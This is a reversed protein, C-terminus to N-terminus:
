FTLAKLHYGRKMQGVDYETRDAIKEGKENEHTRINVLMRTHAIQGSQADYVNKTQVRPVEIQDIQHKVLFLDFVFAHEVTTEEREKAIKYQLCAWPNYAGYAHVTDRGNKEFSGVFEGFENAVGFVDYKHHHKKAEAIIGNYQYIVGLRDHYLANM